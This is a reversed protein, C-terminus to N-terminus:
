EHIQRSVELREHVFSLFSRTMHLDTRFSMVDNGLQDSLSILLLMGDYGRGM